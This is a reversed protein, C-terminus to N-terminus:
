QFSAAIRESEEWLRRALGADAGHRSTRAVNCDAFYDGNSGSLQPHAAVYVQTAAGQPITKMFLGKVWDTGMQMIKPLHRVLNTPIVGPHVAYAGQKPGLRTALEKAFLLNALKSQGYAGWSTYGNAGDLNDFQIGARYAQKHAVSSLMVVRGEETLTDLLGHDFFTGSTTPSSSFSMAM